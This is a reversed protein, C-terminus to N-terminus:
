ITNLASTTSFAWKTIEGMPEPIVSQWNLM